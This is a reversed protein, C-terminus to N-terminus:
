TSKAAPTSWENSCSKRAANAPPRTFRALCPSAPTTRSSTRHPCSTTNWAAWNRSPWQPKGACASAAPAASAMIERLDSSVGSLGLLGSERSLLHMVQEPSQGEQQLLHLVVGPDLRGCRTGMPLGDLPSFGMSTAWSQGQQLACLSAGNGLHALVVRQQLLAPAHQALQAHLSEYSLGHFGYRRIGRAFLAQPLAFRQQLEPQGHHFATDFCAVQPVGAFAAQAARVGALNAPQHLPALPALQTIHQLVQADILVPEAYRTGGHVIRHGVARLQLDPRAQLWALVAALADAHSAPGDKGRLARPPQPPQATQLRLTAGSALGLGDAQGWALAQPQALQGRAALTADFLAFKLSSSGANLTLVQGAAASHGAGPRESM